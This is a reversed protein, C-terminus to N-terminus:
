IKVNQNKGSHLWQQCFLAPLEGFWTVIVTGIITPMLYDAHYIASTYLNIERLNQVTKLAFNFQNVYELFFNQGLFELGPKEM